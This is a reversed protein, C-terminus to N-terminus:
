KSAYDSSKRMFTLGNIDVEKQKLLSIGLRLAICDAVCATPPRPPPDLWLPAPKASRRAWRCRSARHLQDEHPLVIAGGFRGVGGMESGNRAPMSSETIVFGRGLVVTATTRKTVRPVHAACASSATLGPLHANEATTDSSLAGIPASNPDLPGLFKIPKTM